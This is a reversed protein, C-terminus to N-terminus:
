PYLGQWGLAGQSQKANSVRGEQDGLLKELARMLEQYTHYIAVYIDVFIFLFSHVFICLHM